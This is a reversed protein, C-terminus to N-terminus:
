AVGKGPNMIGGPDLAHKIRRMLEIELEPKYRRIEERKARGIGHEASISGGHAAVLDHVVRSVESRRALFADKEVGVPQSFNFHLNGDGVHGFPVPRIGPVLREVAAIGERVFAPIRSVPVSVDHKLSGGEPKQAESMSERMRWLAAAQAASAALVADSILEQEAAAALVEEAEAVAVTLDCIVYWPSPSPLPDAAGPLHRLAFSFGMRSILEFALVGHDTRSRCVALLEVAAEVSPVAAFLTQVQRPRPFLKLVAATIIGLTGESGIFLHKLDYGTNDKRLARLGDWVEGAATVVELGLVLERANGYRLVHIGGANSALNGGITASGEAALSLPFLRDAAAAAAQVAALTCGAEVTM